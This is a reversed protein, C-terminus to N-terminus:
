KDLRFFKAKLNEAIRKQEANQRMEPSVDIGCSDCDRCYQETESCAQIIKNLRRLHEETLPGGKKDRAM